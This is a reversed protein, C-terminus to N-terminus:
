EGLVYEAWDAVAAMGASNPHWVMGDSMDYGPPNGVAYPKDGCPTNRASWDHASLLLSGNKLAVEETIDALRQAIKRAKAAHEESIPTAECLSDPVLRLYQVFMLHANPARQSVQRAIENLNKEVIAYDVESPERGSPCDFTRGQFTTKGSEDCGAAMLAGVYNLDNGGITVTVLTTDPTVADIQAPLEGWPGLVHETTAGSCTADVLTLKLKQALLTPYNAFTRSCRAPTGPKIPGLGPGAAMSSGMAVYRGHEVASAGPREGYNACGSLLFASLVIAAGFKRM